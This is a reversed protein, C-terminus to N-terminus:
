GLEISSAHPQSEETSWTHSMATRSPRIEDEAHLMTTTIKDDLTSLRDQELSADYDGTKIRQFLEAVETFINQAQLSEHLTSVYEYSKFTNNVRFARTRPEQNSEEHSSWLGHLDLDLGIGRHDSAAGQELGLVGVEIFPLLDESCFIFDIPSGHRASSTPFPCRGHLHEIPDILGSSRIFLDLGHSPFLADSTAENADIGLIISYDKRQLEIIHELLDTLCRERPDSAAGLVRRHQAMVSIVDNVGDVPRYATIIAIGQNRPGHLLAIAFRGLHDSHHHVLRGTLRQMTWQCVGGPLSNIAGGLTFRTSCAHTNHSTQLSGPGMLEYFARKSVGLQKVNGWNVGTEALMVCDPDLARLGALKMHTTAMNFNQNASLNNVNQFIFRYIHQPKTGHFSKGWTESPDPSDTM